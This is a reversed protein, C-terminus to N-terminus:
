GILKKELVKKRRILKDLVQGKYLQKGKKDTLGTLKAISHSLRTITKNAKLKKNLPAEEYAKIAANVAKLEKTYEKQHRYLILLRQIAPEHRPHLRIITQYAKEAQEWEGADELERADHLTPIIEDKKHVVKM